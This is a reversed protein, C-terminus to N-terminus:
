ATALIDNVDIVDMGAARASELGPPADEFALCHKPDVGLKEAAVLFTEPHPKHNEVDDACVVADFHDTMGIAQLTNTIGTRTSGTAVAIPLKGKYELALEVIPEIRTIKDAHEYYADYKELMIARADLTRGSEKALIDLIQVAPVGGFAMFRDHPLLHDLEHKKLTEHWAIWHVPMSDALTGDCDFVLARHHPKIM